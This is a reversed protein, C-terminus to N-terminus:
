GRANSQIGSDCRQASLRLNFPLNISETTRRRSFIPKTRWRESDQRQYNRNWEVLNYINWLLTRLRSSRVGCLGFLLWHCLEFRCLNTLIPGFDEDAYVFTAQSPQCSGTPVIIDVHSHCLVFNGFRIAGNGNGRYEQRGLALFVLCLAISEVRLGEYHRHHDKSTQSSTIQENTQQM